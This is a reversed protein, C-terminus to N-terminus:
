VSRKLFAPISIDEDKDKKITEETENFSDKEEPLDNLPKSLDYKNEEEIIESKITEKNKTSRNINNKKIGKIFDPLGDDEEIVEITEEKVSKEKKTELEKIRDIEEIEENSLFDTAIITVTIEDDAKENITTGMIVEADEATISEVVRGVADFDELSGNVELSVNVIVRKASSLNKEELFPCSIAELAAREAKNEGTARGIGIMSNGSDKMVTKLDNFDINILGPKTIIDSIGQISNYLVQDVNEFITTLSLSIDEVEKLKENPIVILSDVNDKLEEIGKLAKNMRANREFAFPKTVVAVVLFGMKKAIDAIVPASGTGTGGGMGAAIFLLNGGELYNRILEEDEEASKRGIKPDAGAGLGQTLKQGLQIKKQVNDLKELDQADTNAALFEVGNIESYSMFSIANCGGGGVGIVKIIPKLDKSSM